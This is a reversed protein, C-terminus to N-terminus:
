KEEGCFRTFQTLWIDAIQSYLDRASQRDGPKIYRTNKAMFASLVLERLSSEAKNFLAWEYNGISAPTRCGTTQQTGTVNDKFDRMLSAFLMNTNYMPSEIDHQDIVKKAAEEDRKTRDQNIADVIIHQLEEKTIEM